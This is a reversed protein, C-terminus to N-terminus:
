KSVTPNSKETTLRGRGSAVPKVRADALLRAYERGDGPGKNILPILVVVPALTALAIAGGAKM